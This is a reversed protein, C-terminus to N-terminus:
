PQICTATSRQIRTPSGPCGKGNYIDVAVNAWIVDCTSPPPRSCLFDGTVLKFSKDEGVSNVCVGAAREVCDYGNLGSASNEEVTLTKDVDNKSAFTFEGKLPGFDLQWTKGDRREARLRKTVSDYDNESAYIVRNKVDIHYLIQGKTFLENVAAKGFEVRFTGSEDGKEQSAGCGALLLCAIGFFSVFFLRFRAPPRM